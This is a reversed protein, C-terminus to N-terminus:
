DNPISIVTESTVTMSAAPLSLATFEVEEELLNWSFTDMQFLTSRLDLVLPPYNLEAPFDMRGSLSIRPLAFSLALDLATLSMFEKGYQRNDSWASM